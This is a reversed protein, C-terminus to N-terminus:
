VYMKGPNATPAGEMMDRSLKRGFLNWIQAIFYYLPAALMSYSFGGRICGGRSSHLNIVDAM